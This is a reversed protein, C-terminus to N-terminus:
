SHRELRAKVVDWRDGPDADETAERESLVDRHWDPASVAEPLAALSGWLAEILDLRQEPSHKLLDAFNITSLTIGRVSPL